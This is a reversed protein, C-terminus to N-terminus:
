EMLKTNRELPASFLQNEDKEPKKGDILIQVKEIGAIRTLSDVVSYVALKEAESGSELGSLFAATFNVFCVEETTEISVIETNKSFTRELESSAPGKILEAVVTKEISNDTMTAKRTEPRLTKGKRDTFYLTIFKETRAESGSPSDTLVSSSGLPEVIGGKGGDSRLEEDNVYIKVKKINEFQCLTMIISYRALLEISASNEEKSDVYFDGSLNINVLGPDEKSESVAKLSVGKPIVSSFETNVPGAFMKEMVEAVLTQTNGLSAENIFTTETVLSNRAKNAFYLKVEEKGAPVGSSCSSFVFVIILILSILKTFNNM